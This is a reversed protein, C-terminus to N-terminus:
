ASQRKMKLGRYVYVAYRAGTSSTAWETVIDYGRRRLKLIADGGNMYQANKLIDLKSGSGNDQLYKLVRMLKAETM